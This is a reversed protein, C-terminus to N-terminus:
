LHSLCFFMGTLKEQITKHYKELEAALIDWKTQPLSDQMTADGDGQSEQKKEIEEVSKDRAKFYAITKNFLEARNIMKGPEKPHPVQNLGAKREDILGLEERLLARDKRMQKTAAVNVKLWRDACFSTPVQLGLGQADDTTQRNKVRMTFISPVQQLFYEEDSDGNRDNVWLIRDIADYLSQKPTSAVMDIDLRHLENPEDKYAGDVQQRSSVVGKFLTQSESSGYVDAAQTWGVLFRVDGTFNHRTGDNIITDVVEASLGPLSELQEVSGYTRNSEQMFAMLRVTETVVDQQPDRDEVISPEGAHADEGDWWKHNSGYHELPIKEYLLEKRAKPIQGLITILSPLPDVERLPKFCVPEGNGRNRVRETADPNEYLRTASTSVPVMAWENANYSAADRQM